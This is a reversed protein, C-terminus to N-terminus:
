LNDTQEESNKLVVEAIPLEWCDSQIYPRFAEQPDKRFRRIMALVRITKIQSLLPQWRECGIKSLRAIPENNSDMLELHNGSRILRLLDGVNVAALRAHVPHKEPFRGAYDLYLDKLNIVGYRQHRLSPDVLLDRNEVVELIHAGGLVNLFRNPRGQLDIISLTQMARTMGVYLIRREEEEQPGGISNKWDGGTVFVHAFELGKAGHITNLFVGRGLTKERRQEELGNYLWDIFYHVSLKADGTELRYNDIMERILNWWPNDLENSLDRLLEDLDTATKLEKKWEKAKDLFTAIERVRHLSPTNIMALRIPINEKECLTRILNLSDKTRSLVAFDSWNPEPSLRHLKKLERIILCAQQWQDSLHIWRVKGATKPDLKEWLGGAPEGKRTHNVRIPHDGKMRDRNQAILQNSAAIINKTSRYNEVLYEANAEYDEQFKRIFEVNTGRFTYINQDDDGVALISLKGEGQELTRGTIASVLNYQDQDIDQYEDVLIHSYGALLRDRLDDEELGPIEKEGRLLAVADRIIEDFNIAGGENRESWEAISKGTLRMALAHYTLITLGYADRDVLKLLQKRLSIAAGHNFCLILIHEAPVRQVRLLWACRHVIVRSKGSGPGALLLRNEDVPSEVVEMQVPNKLNEVIKQWSDMGTAKDLLEKQNSFYRNIFKRRTLSFYDLVLTLAKSIADLSIRAYENMVHIQFIKERYHVELPKYDTNSYRRSKAEEMVRITMAQRFIALGNQMRIIKNEHLFMLGRDMAALSDKLVSRLEIDQRLADTLDSGAFSVQIDTVRNSEKGLMGQAKDHLVGLIVSAIKRRREALEILTSWNRNLRLRYRDKAIHKMDISAKKGAFGKGDMSLSKLLNVITIPNCAFGDSELRQNLRRTNMEVWDGRDSEPDEEQMRKVLVEDLTCLEEFKKLASNKGSVTIFATLLMGQDVIGREEMQHLIGLVEQAPTRGSREVIKQLIRNHQFLQEAIGDASLGDDDASNILIKLIALWLTAMSKSLDLSEIKEEGDEVSEVRLKGQFVQTFNLNRELFGSRELWSIATKVKNDRMKDKHDYLSSLEEDRLLEDTTLVIEGNAQRKAKRVGRLIREIENKKIESLSNLRFQSEMDEPSYLLLCRAEKQDRGARGAEQLYNEMSGPTDVHLVLRVDDKDIGMGFANTACVIPIEGSKFAELIQRKEQNKMGGHFREVELGHHEVFEKIEETRKQTSAYLVVSGPSEGEFHEKLIKTARDFKEPPNVLQVEFNLNDREVTGEHLEMEIELEKQFHELIEDKVSQKATATVCVISPVPLNKDRSFERISRATYLYDPRFDHGWKSLCHAEDFVWCSIERQRLARQVSRNRLQEPSLYLIAVDGLRVRELAAGREPPTLMGYIAEAYPTGTNEILNDVQDKMLAQLPSVVVTMVGRRIYRILAPLQFCLSKGGGTPLIALMSRDGMGRSVIKEQLPEGTEDKPESRFSSFGFFRDLHFVPDHNKRCYECDDRNCHEERVRRLLYTIAPFQYRVWEPLVSNAGAVQLWSLAYALVPRKEPNEGFEMAVAKLFFDCGSGRSKRLFTTISESLSNNEKKTFKKLLNAIGDGDVDGLSANRFCFLYFSLLEENEEAMESFAKWEDRFLKRSLKCDKVPDNKGSRVLKYGKILHHYPNKPFALPSLYLTDIVPLRTIQISDSLSNLVKIDHGILNHGLLYQADAAFQDLEKLSSQTDFRGTRVFERDGRIAGIKLLKGDLTTELDLILCQALLNELLNSQSRNVPLYEFLSEKM